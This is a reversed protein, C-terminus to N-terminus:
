DLKQVNPFLTSSRADLGNQSPPRVGNSQAPAPPEIQTDGRNPSATQSQPKSISLSWRRLREAQDRRHALRWLLWLTVGLTVCVLLPLAGFGAAFSIQDIIPGSTVLMGSMALGGALSFISLVTARQDSTIRRNIYGTAIPRIAAQAISVMFIVGLMGLHSWIMLPILFVAGYLMITPFSRREGLRGILWAAALMGLMTGLYAPILVASFIVGEGLSTMPDINHEVRVWLQTFFRPMDFIAILLAAFPILFRVPRIQWVMRLGQVVEAFIPIGGQGAASSDARQDHATHRVEAPPAHLPDLAYESERRPPERLLMAAGAAVLFFIGSLIITASYGIAYALPGGIATALIMMLWFLGQSRGHHREYENTRGLVRLTDYLLAESAGSYLTMAIGLLLYSGFLIPVTTALAFVVTALAFLLAGLCLSVRRGFRDAVAGTPVECIVLTLWFVSEFISIQSISLGRGDLLYVMWIPLFIMFGTSSMFLYYVRINRQFHRPDNKSLTSIAASM